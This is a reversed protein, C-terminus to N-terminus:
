IIGKLKNMCCHFEEELTYTKSDISNLYASIEGIAVLNKLNSFTM